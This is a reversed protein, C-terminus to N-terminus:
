NSPGLTEPAGQWYPRAQWNGAPGNPYQGQGNPPGRGYDYPGYPNSWSSNPGPPNAANVANASSVSAALALGSCVILIKKM